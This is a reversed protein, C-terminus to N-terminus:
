EEYPNDVGTVDNVVDLDVEADSNADGNELLDHKIPQVDSEDEDIRNM